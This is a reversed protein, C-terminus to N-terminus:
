IRSELHTHSQASSGQRLNLQSARPSGAGLTNQVLSPGSLISRASLAPLLLAPSVITIIILNIKLDAQSVEMRGSTRGDTRGDTLGDM